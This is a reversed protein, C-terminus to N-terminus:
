SVSCQFKYRYRFHIYENYCWMFYFPELQETQTHIDAKRPQKSAELSVFSCPKDILQTESNFKATAPQAGVYMM